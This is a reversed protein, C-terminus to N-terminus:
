SDGGADDSKQENSDSKEQTETADSGAEGDEDLFAEDEDEEVVPEIEQMAHTVSALVNDGSTVLTINDTLEINEINMSNGLNLNSIDVEIFEPIDAPLCQIEVENAVQNLVGGEEVVGIPNGVLKLPININIPKNMNIGYLDLHLVEETVPHYQVSKFLVNQKKGGVSINFIRAGSKLAQQYDKGSIFIPTSSQSTPSYYIGPINGEKRLDKVSRKGTNERKNVDIKYENSM